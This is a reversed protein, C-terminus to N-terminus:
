HEDPRDAAAFHQELHKMVAEPQEQAVSHGADEVTVWRGGTARAVAEGSVAPPFLVDQAGAVALVPVDCGRLLEGVLSEREAYARLSPAIRDLETYREGWESVFDPRNQRTWAGFSVRTLLDVVQVSTGDVDIEGAVGHHEVHDALANVAKRHREADVSGAIATVSTVLDSRWAAVGLAVMAGLGQGVIHPKNLGLGTIVEITHATLVSLNVEPNLRRPPRHVGQGFHDWAVVRYGRAVLMEMLARFARYGMMLPHSLVVCRGDPPGAENTVLLTGPTSVANTRFKM